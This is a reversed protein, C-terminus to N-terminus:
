FENNAIEMRKPKVFQLLIGILVVVTNFTINIIYIKQNNFYLIIVLITIVVSIILTIKKLLHSNEDTLKKHVDPQPSTICICILTTILMPFIINYSLKLMYYPIYICLFFLIYSLISCLQKTPAHIGGAFTRLPIVTIIFILTSTVNSMPLSILLLSSCFLLLEIIYQYSYCYIEKDNRSIIELKILKEVIIDTLYNSLM